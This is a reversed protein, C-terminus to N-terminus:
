GTPPGPNGSKNPRCRIGTGRTRTTRRWRPSSPGCNVLAAVTSMLRRGGSAIRVAQEFMPYVHVPRDLNIRIQADGSMQFEDDSGPAVPVSEDQETGALRRGAARLRTRSRWTEAGAILVADARSHQIDLSAQNVLSQPVNGGIGTYRTTAKNARIRQAVLRGPDRYRWSLLNVVRVSDVAELVRPEAAQRAAAEM